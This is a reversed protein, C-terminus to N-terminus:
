DEFPGADITFFFSTGNPQNSRCWIEGGMRQVLKHAIALGLGLGPYNRTPSSDAQTFPEFLKDIDAENIGTGTDTIEFLLKQRDSIVM